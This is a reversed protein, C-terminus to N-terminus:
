GTSTWPVAGRETSSSSNRRVGCATSKAVEDNQCPTSTCPSCSLATIMSLSGNTEGPSGITAARM